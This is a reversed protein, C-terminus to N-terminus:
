LELLPCEDKQLLEQLKKQHGDLTAYPCKLYLVVGRGARRLAQETLQGQHENTEPELAGLIRAGKYLVHLDHKLVFLPKVHLQLEAIIWDSDELKLWLNLLIDRNGGAKIADYDPKIRDKARCVIARSLHPSIGQYGTHQDDGTWPGGDTLFRLAVDMAHLSPFVLTCRVLDCLKRYNGAYEEAVKACCRKVGKISVKSSTM